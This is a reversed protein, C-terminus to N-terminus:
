VALLSEILRKGDAGNWEVEGRVVGVPSGRRSVLLTTPFVNVGWARAVAGDRDMLVPLSLPVVSPMVPVAPESPVLVPM